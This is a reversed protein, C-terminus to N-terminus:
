PYIPIGSSSSHPNWEAVITVGTILNLDTKGTPDREIIPDVLTWKLNKGYGFFKQPDVAKGKPQHNDLNQVFAIYAKRAATYAGWTADDASDCQMVAENIASLLRHTESALANFALKLRQFAEVKKLGTIKPGDHEFNSLPHPIKELKKKDESLREKKPAGEFEDEQIATRISEIQLLNDQDFRERRTQTVQLKPTEPPIWNYPPVKLDSATSFKADGDITPVTDIDPM